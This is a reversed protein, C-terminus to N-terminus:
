CKPRPAASRSLRDNIAAGLGHSPIPAFAIGAQGKALLDAERMLHFLNAAAEVLDASPSLNPPIKAAKGWPFKM